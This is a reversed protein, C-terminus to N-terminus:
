CGQSGLEQMLHQAARLGTQADPEAKVVASLGNEIHRENLHLLADPGAYSQVVTWAEGLARQTAEPMASVSPRVQELATLALAGPDDSAALDRGTIAHTAFLHDSPIPALLEAAGSERFFTAEAHVAQVVESLTPETEGNHPIDLASLERDLTLMVMVRARTYPCNAVIFGMADHVERRKADPLSRIHEIVAEVGEITYAVDHEMRDIDPQPPPSLPVGAVPADSSPPLTEAGVSCAAIWIPLLTLPLRNM